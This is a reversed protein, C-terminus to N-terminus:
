PGPQRGMQVLDPVVTDGLIGYNPEYLMPVQDQPGPIASGFPVQLWITYNCYLM